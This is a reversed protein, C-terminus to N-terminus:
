NFQTSPSPEDNDFLTMTADLNASAATPSARQRPSLTVASDYPLPGAPLVKWAMLVTAIANAYWASRAPTNSHYAGVARWTNGHRRVQRAYHWAAVFASTCGDGLARSDIGHRALESLHQSNIQFAGIDWTGNVNRALAQPKLRSEHWGIARLVQGNVGHRLAAQDICDGHAAASAACSAFMAFLAPLAPNLLHSEEVGVAHADASQQTYDSAERRADASFILPNLQRRLVHHNELMTAFPIAWSM